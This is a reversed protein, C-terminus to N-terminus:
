LKEGLKARIAKVALSHWMGTIDIDLQEAMAAVGERTESWKDSVPRKPTAVPTTM